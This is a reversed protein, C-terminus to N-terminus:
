SKLIITAIYKQGDEKDISFGKDTIDYVSLKSNGEFDSVNISIYEPITIPFVIKKDKTIGWVYMSGNRMGIYGTDQAEIMKYAYTIFKNMNERFCEM